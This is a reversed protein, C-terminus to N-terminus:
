TRRKVCSRPFLTLQVLLSIAPVVGLPWWLGTIFVFVLGAFSAGELVAMPIIMATTYKGRLTGDDADPDIMLRPVFVTAVIGMFLMGGDIATLPLIPLDDQQHAAGQRQLVITVVAFVLQGMVLAAWIIRSTMVVGPPVPRGSDLMQPSAM